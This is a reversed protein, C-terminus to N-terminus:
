QMLNKTICFKWVMPRFVCNPGPPSCEPLNKKMVLESSLSSSRNRWCLSACGRSFECKGIGLVTICLLFFFLCLTVGAFELESPVIFFDNVTDVGHPIRGYGGM